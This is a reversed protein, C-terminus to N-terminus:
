HTTRPAVWIELARERGQAWGKRPSLKLVVSSIEIESSSFGFHEQFFRSVEHARGFAVKHPDSGDRLTATAVIKLKHAEPSLAKGVRVLRPLVAPYVKEAGVPFADEMHIWLSEGQREVETRVGREESSALEDRLVAVLDEGKTKQKVPVPLDGTHLLAELRTPEMAHKLSESMEKWKAAKRDSVAYLAIFVGLLLIFFGSLSLWTTELSHRQGLKRDM